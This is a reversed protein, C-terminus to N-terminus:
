WAHWAFSDFASLNCCTQLVRCSGSSIPPLCWRLLTRAPRPFVRVICAIVTVVHWLMNLLWQKSRLNQFRRSKWSAMKALQSSYKVLHSPWKYDENSNQLMDVHRCRALFLCKAVVDQRGPSPARGKGRREERPTPSGAFLKQNWLLFFVHFMIMEDDWWRVDMHNWSTGHLGWRWCITVSSELWLASFHGLVWYQSSFGFRLWDVLGHAGQAEHTSRTLDKLEHGAEFFPFSSFSSWGRGLVSRLCQSRRKFDALILIVDHWCFGKGYGIACAANLKKAKLIRLAGKAEAHGDKSRREKNWM